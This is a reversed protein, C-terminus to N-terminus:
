AAPMGSAALAAQLEGLVKAVAPHQSVRGAYAALKPRCALLEADGLMGALAPVGFLAPGLVCDARTFAPGAAYGDAAVFHELRDLGASLRERASAAANPDGSTMDHFFQVLPVLVGNEALRQLLAVRARGEPDSPVLPREPFKEDLYALIVASEPLPSGNDLMLCPISGTVTIQRYTDSKLGGAPPAIEVDLGKAYIAARVPACWPSTDDSYLLM